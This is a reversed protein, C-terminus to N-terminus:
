FTTLAKTLDNKKNLIASKELNEYFFNFYIGVSGTDQVLRYQLSTVGDLLFKSQTMDINIIDTFNQYIDFVEQSLIYEQQEIGNADLYVKVFPEQVQPDTLLSFRWRIKLWWLLYANNAVENLIYEYTQTKNVIVNTDYWLKNANYHEVDFFRLPNPAGIATTGPKIHITFYKKTNSFTYGAFEEPVAISTPAPIDDIFSVVSNGKIFM